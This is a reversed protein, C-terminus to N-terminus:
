WTTTEGNLDELMIVCQISSRARINAELLFNAGLEQIASIWRGPVRM